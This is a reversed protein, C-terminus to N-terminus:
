HGVIKVLLTVVAVSIGIPVALTPQIAVVVGILAATVIIILARSSLLPRSEAPEHQPEPDNQEAGM